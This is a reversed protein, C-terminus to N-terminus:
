TTQGREALLELLDDAPLIALWPRNNRRHLVMPVREGADNSAQDMAGWLHLAEVRKVEIHIGPITHVVDPSDAGGHYQRGRHAQFGHTRLLEAAEREGRAGKSRSHKGM